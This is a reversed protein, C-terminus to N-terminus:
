YDLVNSNLHLCQLGPFVKLLHKHTFYSIHAWLVTAEAADKYHGNEVALATPLPLNGPRISSSEPGLVRLM